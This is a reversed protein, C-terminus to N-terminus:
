MELMEAADSDVLWTVKEPWKAHLQAPKKVVDFDGELVNKLAKAKGEGTVIMLIKKAKGLGEPTVTLRMGKGSVDIAAFHSNNKKQLLESGPFLSAIHCDDGMGLLCLDYGAQGMSAEMKEAAQNAPLNVKFPMKLSEKVGLPNLLMREANGFNSQDDSLLVYREDSVTWTIKELLDQNILHNKVAYDYFAKPTSGGTLAVVGSVLENAIYHFIKELSLVHITGYRTKLIKNEM